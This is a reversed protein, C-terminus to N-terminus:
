KQRLFIEELEERFDEPIFRRNEAEETSVGYEKEKVDWFGIPYLAVSKDESVNGIIDKDWLGLNQKSHGRFNCSIWRNRVLDKYGGSEVM